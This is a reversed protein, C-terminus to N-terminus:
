RRGRRRRTEVQPHYRLSTPLLVREEGFRAEWHPADTFRANSILKSPLATPLIDFVTPKPEGIDLWNLYGEFQFDGHGQRVSDAREWQLRAKSLFKGLRIYACERVERETLVFFLFRSGPVILRLFGWDPYAISREKGAFEYGERITNFQTQRFRLRLPKAPTVYLGVENLPRLERDYAPRQVVHGYPPSHPLRFAGAAALAYTLAYNHLFPGTEFTKGRETTAFFLYDMLELTCRYIIM